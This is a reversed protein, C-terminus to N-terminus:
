NGGELMKQKVFKGSTTLQNDQWGGNSGAGPTLASAAEDKNFLSWNAWSIKKDNLYNMWVTSENADVGGAGSADCTGWETVFLALGKNLATNAKDRLFQKHTAAYFHLTYAVNSYKKIPDNAAQDVDQSWNPTGVIVLNESGANRIVGIVEEAYSKISSWSEALPENYVEFIVNPQKGYQQAMETFFKKSQEKHQSAHHDHWDIIVYIGNQTAADVITKVKSKEADPSQLYGNGEEVGMAARIIGGKWDKAVTSVVSANYFDGAWQSWFLSMGRLQVPQGSESQVQNGSVKLRGYKEVPSGSVNGGGSSSSSAGSSSSASTSGGSGAAGPGVSGTPEGTTGGSSSTAGGGGGEGENVDDSTLGADCGTLMSLALITFATGMPRAWAKSMGSSVKLTISNM